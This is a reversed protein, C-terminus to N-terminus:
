SFLLMSAARANYNKKVSLFGNPIYRLLDKNNVNEFEIALSIKSLRTNSKQMASKLVMVRDKKHRRNGRSLFLSAM